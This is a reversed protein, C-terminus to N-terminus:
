RSCGPPGGARLRVTGPAGGPGQEEVLWAGCDGWRAVTAPVAPPVSAAPSPPVASDSRVWLVLLTAVVTVPAM